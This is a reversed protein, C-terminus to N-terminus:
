AVHASRAGPAGVPRGGNGKTSASLARSLRGREGRPTAPSPGEHWRVGLFDWLGPHKGVYKAVYRLERDSRIPYVRAWGYGKHEACYDVVDMRRLDRVGALLGHAHWAGSKHREWVVIGYLGKKREVWRRGWAIRSLTGILARMRRRCYALKNHVAKVRPPAIRRAGGRPKPTRSYPKKVATERIPPWTVTFFWDWHGARFWEVLADRM